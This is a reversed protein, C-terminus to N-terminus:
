SLPEAKWLQRYLHYAKRLQRLYPSARGDGQSTLGLWEEYMKGGPFPGSWNATTEQADSSFRPPQGAKWWEDMWEFIVGGVANGTGRGAMNDELDVWNGFHYLAQGLEGVDLPMQAQYAPCGFETIMAPRDITDRVAEFFSRGFGHMGRYVNAGFVDLEPMVQAILDVFMWEGNAIAVPHNPDEQHIWAALENLFTYYERPYQGANGVGGIIGHQGGYNNENGLVWLLVYPEDKFERVMQKVSETMRARQEPNLYDTGAEWTAGSGVTYMGVLDGMLVMIGYQEYLRRLLAKNAAHHYLRITNIGMDHFLQLDGVSPENPDQRNNRNADVFTELSDLVDNQNRDALMWDKYTGEDHSEGVAAVSYSIGRIVWPQGDVLLQWHGNAYQRARVRGQRRERKISLTSLDAPPPNVAEPAARVLRGPDVRMADNELDNDYGGEVIVRAGELRLGLEPHLRLLTELKDRAVKGVYWPTQFETWGVADPFHVLVAYYAKVAARLLGARELAYATFFQKVGPAEEASAWALFALQANSHHTFDWIAGELTGDRLAQRFAPDDYLGQENPYIGEGVAAALGARDRIEYRYRAGGRDHFTGYRDYSVLEETGPDALAFAPPVHLAERIEQPARREWVSPQHSPPAVPTKQASREDVVVARTAGVRRTPARADPPMAAAVIILGPERLLYVGEAIGAENTRKSQVLEARAQPELIAIEVPYDALPQEDAARAVVRFRMPVLEQTVDYRPQDTELVVTPAHWAQGVLISRKRELLRKGKADRADMVVTLAGSSPRRRPVPLTAKWWHPSVRTASQWRGRGLRVRISAVAETAYVSVPVHEEYAIESVPSVLIAQNYTALAEYAPRPTGVRDEASDFAVLGFWEEPDAPDHAQADDHTQGRKWWEDNWEFVCAGQIRAQFLADWAALLAQAQAKPQYGGYGPRDTPEPSASLGMETVILPRDPALTRKLHEVYGRLGFSHTVVAPEYPYVNFALFDWMAHDLSELVPWNAHSMLRAPATARVTQALEHLFAETSAVGAQYVRGPALENGVLLGLVNGAAASQAVARRVRERAADRVTPSAYDSEPDIWIGQLVMLQHTQALALQEPTLPAWTRITNFGAAHIKAFDRAMLELSVQGKWPTQGPRYPSYGVGVVLFPEGDVYFWEGRQHVRREVPETPLASAASLGLLVLAVCGGAVRILRRMRPLEFM